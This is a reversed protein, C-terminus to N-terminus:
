EPEPEPAPELFSRAVYGREPISIRVWDGDVGSEVRVRQDRYLV